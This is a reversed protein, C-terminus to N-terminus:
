IVQFDTQIKSKSGKYKDFFVRNEQWFKASVVVISSNPKSPCFSCLKDLCFMYKGFCVAQPLRTLMARHNKCRARMESIKDVGFRGAFAFLILGGFAFVSNVVIKVNQLIKM